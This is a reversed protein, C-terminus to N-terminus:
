ANARTVSSYSTSGNSHFSTLAHFGSWPSYLRNWAVSRSCFGAILVEIESPPQFKPDVMKEGITRDASFRAVKMLDSIANARSCVNSPTSM